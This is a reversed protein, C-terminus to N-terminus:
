KYRLADLPNLKSARKAPYYGGILGVLSSLLVIFFMFWTPYSFLKLTEGGFSKSIVNIIIQVLQSSLIGLVIGSIGGLFGIMLSEGLFLWMIDGPAAGIARMIGIENTRELLSITMTNILGIAAVVLAVIGFVGLVIQIISFIKNAQDITDSLASVLFGMSVLEDRVSNLNTENNVKIKVSAYEKIPLDKIDTNKILIQGQTDNDEVVGVIEFENEMSYSKLETQNESTEDPLFAMAKIKKGIMQNEDLNFLKAITTNIIIKNKDDANFSKGITPSIGELTLYDLDVINITAESTLDDLTINGPFQGHPSIKEINKIKSIKDFTEQNLKILESDSSMVDLTLLSDKTTIKELLSSQLGYGFSVLFLVAAIAVSVGLVTFFIRSKRNKFNQLSISLLDKIKM